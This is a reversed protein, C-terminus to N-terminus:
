VGEDEMIERVKETTVIRGRSRLVPVGDKLKPTATERVRSGEGGEERLVHLGRRFFRSLIKGATTKEQAALEKAAQLVDEDIDLTTRM